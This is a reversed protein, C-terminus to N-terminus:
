SENSDKDGLFITMQDITMQGFTKQGYAKQGFIM